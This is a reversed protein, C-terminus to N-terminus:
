KAKKVSSLKGKIKKSGSKKYACVRYYYKKGSKKDTYKLTKGGKVSAIQKFGKNKKASRMIIYGDAKSVKAWKITCKKGKLKVSKLKPAKLKSQVAPEKGDNSPAASTVAGAPQNSGGQSPTVATQNGQNGGNGSQSNKSVVKCSASKKSGDAAYATILAEGETLVNVKGTVSDVKAVKTNDSMYIVSQCAEAPTVAASLDFSTGPVVEATTSSLKIESVNVPISGIPMIADLVFTGSKLTVTIKKKGAGLGSMIYASCHNGSKNTSADEAVLKGDVEVDIKATQENKGILTFADTDIDFSFSSGATSSKSTSRYWDSSSGNAAIEWNGEYSVRDAANDIIPCGYPITELMDAEDDNIKEVLLNDFSARNWGSFLRLRGFLEADRDEVQKLENGDIYLTIKSGKGELALKHTSGEAFDSLTGGALYTYGRHLEWKGDSSLKVNYGSGNHNLGTQERIVLGAFGGEPLTVDVSAKYNMWRYDGIVANPTNDQWQSVKDTLVQWLAGDEVVFAGSYDVTYRPEMGRNKLYDKDYDAYEYNDAYLVNSSIDAVKGTENTDLVPNYSEAPLRKTYEERGDCDLSTVTVISFPKVTFSYKDGDAKVEGTYKMYSDTMTEWKELSKGAEINMDVTEIEYELEKDSNNVVITSFDKKDPSALTIYSPKGEENKLHETGTSDNASADAIIRWIGETNDKNEWGTKAFKSFHELCYIAEDYHIHGSWPERASLLEKHDYQSGEYFSGIAPQFIYHSKRSYVASKVMCDAMAIPSQYGGLTGGGYATNKNEQFESYSFSGCGESYWVEKDDEDAMRVYDATQSSTGTSYHFGIADVADYLEDDKRMSPVINLSVNEDSAIIKMNRYANKANDDMYSPFNDENSIRDKFWKIFDEDPDWTENKDPNVYDLIYGYKEYADFITESYWKYMAEFGKVKRDSDWAKQVWAPMEWRLISVKVNPNVKKADAALVFGPSRSADAEENEFRMTCSDSGTSNNGDNGMEIKVHNMLPHEGGFLVDLMQYYAAPSETKYDMLLNSTSNASLVGFGKYTLGNVNAAASDVSMGDVVVQVVDDGGKADAKVNVLEGSSVAMCASLVYCLFKGRKRMKGELMKFYDRPIELGTFVLSESEKKILIGWKKALFM